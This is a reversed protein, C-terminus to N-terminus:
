KIIQCIGGKGTGIFIIFRKGDYDLVYCDICWYGRNEAIQKLKGEFKPKEIEKTQTTIDLKCSLLLFLGLILLLRRM